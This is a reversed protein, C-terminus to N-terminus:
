NYIRIILRVRLTFKRSLCIYLLFEGFEKRGLIIYIFIFVKSLIDCVNSKKAYNLTKIFRQNTLYTSEDFDETLRSFDGLEGLFKFMM